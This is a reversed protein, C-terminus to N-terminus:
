KKSWRVGVVCIDDVQEFTDHGTLPDPYAKWEEIAEDLIQKQEEMSKLQNHLILRKFPKYKFKKGKKGGFQDAFGDSYMYLSDGEQLEIINNVFSDMKLYIAIPMKDPKIDYLNYGEESLNPEYEVKEGDAIITLKDEETGKRVFYLSNNAGAWQATGTTEDIALISMDMGDKQEGEKGTQQLANIIHQRLEDLVQGARQVNPDKVIENLASVGLMSMFAGPVGHGTCDAASALVTNKIKGAWYFDGSVIDKPKFLIYHDPLIENAYDEHPLIAKQIREAYHISDTLEENIESIHDRQQEIEQKQQELMSNQKELNEAQAQIEEKQQELVVNKQKIEATRQEVIEELKRKQVQLRYTYLKVIVFIFIFLGVALITIGWWTLYWPTEPEPPPVIEFEYTGVTSIQGYINKARVKFTYLGPELNTYEKFTISTWNSWKEEYGELMYSYKTEGEQNFYPAAFEFYLNNQDYTLRPISEESQSFREKGNKTRDFFTGYFLISDENLRVKRILANFLLGSTDKIKENYSFLGKSNGFYTIGDDDNFIAEFTVNPLPAFSLSDRILQGNEFYNLEVWKQPYYEEQAEKPNDSLSLWLRGLHDETIKSGGNSGDWMSKYLAKQPCFTSDNENYKYIGKQTLFVLSDSINYIYISNLEPIGSEQGFYSLKGEPNLQYIGNYNFAVWINGYKDEAISRIEDDIKMKRVVAELWNDNGTYKLGIIQKQSGFYMMSSDTASQILSWVNPYLYDSSNVTYTTNNTINYPTHSSDVVYLGYAAGIILLSTDSDPIKFNLLKKPFDIGEIANFVPIGNIYDLYFVSTLTAIYITNNYKMIDLVGGINFSEGFYRLATNVEVKDIGNDLAFWLPQNEGQYFHYAVDHQLVNSKSFYNVPNGKQDFEIYGGGYTTIGINNNKLLGAYTIINNQTIASIQNNLVRFPESEGTESNYRYVGNLITFILLNYKPDGYYDLISIVDKDYTILNNKAPEFSIGNTKCLGKRYHGCYFTNNAYYTFYPYYEEFVMKITKVYELNHFAIIESRTCFYVTDNVDIIKYVPKFKGNKIDYDEKTCNHLIFFIEDIIKTSDNSIRKIQNLNLIKQKEITKLEAISRTKNFKYGSSEYLNKLDNIFDVFYAAYNGSNAKYQTYLRTLKDITEDDFDSSNIIAAKQIADIFAMKSSLFQLQNRADGIKNIAEQIKYNLFDQEEPYKGIENQWNIKRQNTIAIFDQLDNIKKEHKRLNDFLNYFFLDNTVLDSSLFEADIMGKIDNYLRKAKNIKFNRYIRTGEKMFFNDVRISPDVAEIIDYKLLTDDLNKIYEIAFDYYEDEVEDLKHSLSFYQMKGKENPALYGFEGYGGVYVTGKDDKALSLVNTNIVEGTVHNKIDILHWNVGDYEIIGDDNNGFYMVGRDDQCVAWMQESARYDEPYYNNHFPIGYKNVQAFLNGNVIVIALLIFIFKITSNKHM